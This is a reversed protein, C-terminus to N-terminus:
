ETTRYGIKLIEGVKCMAEDNLISNISRYIWEMTNTDDSQTFEEQAGITHHHITYNM